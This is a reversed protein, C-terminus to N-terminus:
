DAIINNESFQFLYQMVHFHFKARQFLVKRLGTPRSTVIITIYHKIINHLTQGRKAYLRCPATQPLALLAQRSDLSMIDLRLFSLTVILAAICRTM